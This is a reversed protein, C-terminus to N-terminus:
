TRGLKEALSQINSGGLTKGQQSFYGAITPSGGSVSGGGYYKPVQGGQQYFQERPNYLSLPKERAAVPKNWSGSSRFYDGTRADWLNPSGGGNGGGGGGFLSSIDFTRDEDGIYASGTNIISELLSEDLSSRLAKDQEEYEAIKGSGWFSGGEEEYKPMPFLKQELQKSGVDVVQKTGEGLFHELIDSGKSFLQRKGYQDLTKKQHRKQGQLVDWLSQDRSAGMTDAGQYVAM